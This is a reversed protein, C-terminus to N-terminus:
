CICEQWKKDVFSAFGNLIIQSLALKKKRQM